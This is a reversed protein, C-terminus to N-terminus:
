HRISTIAAWIQRIQANSLSLEGALAFSAAKCEEDTPPDDLAERRVRELAAAIATTIETAPTYNADLLVNKAIEMASQSPQPEAKPAAPLPLWHTAHGGDPCYLVGEEVFARLYNAHKPTFDDIPRWGLTACTAIAEALQRVDESDEIASGRWQEAIQEPTM